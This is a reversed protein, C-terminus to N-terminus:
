IFFKLFATGSKQLEPSTTSGKPILSPTYSATIGDPVVM